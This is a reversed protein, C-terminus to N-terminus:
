RDEGEAPAPDKEYKVTGVAADSVEGELRKLFQAGFPRSSACIKLSM